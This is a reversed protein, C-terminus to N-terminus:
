IRMQRYQWCWPPAAALHTRTCQAVCVRAGFFRAHIAFPVNVFHVITTAREKEGVKKDNLRLVYAEVHMCEWEWKHRKTNANSSMAENRTYNPCWGNKKWRRKRKQWRTSCVNINYARRRRRRMSICCLVVHHRCCLWKSYLTNLLTSCTVPSPMTCRILTDRENRCLFWFTFPHNKKEHVDDDDKM